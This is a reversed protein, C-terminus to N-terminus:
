LCNTIPLLGVPNEGPAPSAYLLNGDPGYIAFSIEGWNDGPFIWTMSETGDPINVTAQVDTDPVTGATGNGPVCDYTSAQWVTCIGVQVITGDIDIQLGDGGNSDNTQWGDGYTDNMVVLYDGPKPTCVILTNYRYPSAYFGGTVQGSATTYDFSRGDTLNLKLDFIFLDGPSFEDMAIGLATFAEEFTASVTARPLGFEDATFVDKSFSKIFKNEAVTTGNSPDLDKLSVYMDVSELLAGNETDQEQVTVSFESTPISSNLLASNIEITRLIAGRDAQLVDYVANDGETCSVLYFVAFAIILIKNIFKM